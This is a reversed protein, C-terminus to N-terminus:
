SEDVARGGVSQCSTLNIRHSGDPASNVSGGTGAQPDGSVTTCSEGVAGDGVSQSAVYNIPHICKTIKTRVSNICCGTVAQGDGNVTTCSEGVAGDGVSQSVVPNLPNENILAIAM